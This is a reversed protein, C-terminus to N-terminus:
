TLVDEDGRGEIPHMGSGLWLIFGLIDPSSPHDNQLILSGSAALLRQLIKKKVLHSLCM